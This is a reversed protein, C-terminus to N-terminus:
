NPATKHKWSADKITSYTHTGESYRSFVGTVEIYDGIGPYTGNMSIFEVTMSCCKTKDFATVFHYDAEAATKSEGTTTSTEDESTSSSTETNLLSNSYYGSVTITKDLQSDDIYLDHIKEYNSPQLLITHMLLVGIAILAALAIAIVHSIPKIKTKNDSM